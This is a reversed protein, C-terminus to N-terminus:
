HTIRRIQHVMAGCYRGLSEPLADTIQASWLTKVLGVHSIRNRYIAYLIFILNAHFLLGAVDYVLYCTWGISTDTEILAGLYIAVNKM